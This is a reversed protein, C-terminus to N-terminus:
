KDGERIITQLLRERIQYAAHSWATAMVYRVMDVDHIGIQGTNAIQHMRDMFNDQIYKWQADLSTATQALADSQRNRPDIAVENTFDALAELMRRAFERDEDPILVSSHTFVMELARRLIPTITVTPKIM